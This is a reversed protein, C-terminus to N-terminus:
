DSLTVPKLLFEQRFILESDQYHSMRYTVYRSPEIGFAEEYKNQDDSLPELLQLLSELGYGFDGM